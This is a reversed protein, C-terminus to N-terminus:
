NSKTDNDLKTISGTQIPGLQNNASNIISRTPIKGLQGHLMWFKKKKRDVMKNM